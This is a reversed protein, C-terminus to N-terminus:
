LLDESAFPELLFMKLRLLWNSHPEDTLLQEKGNRDTVVWEITEADAALRLHYVSESRDSAVLGYIQASLAASDILLGSETNSWASREDFNMSGIFLYRRDVVAIKAHLRGFSKGFNGFSGAERTLDPSLEYIEVGLRLMARRYRSYRWHVLPEDTAGLSNTFVVVRIHHDIAEKIHEMGISGPIFYPSTIVVESRAGELVELMSRTVTSVTATRFGREVKAPNDAFVTAIAFNFPVRGASLQGDLSVGGLPDKSVPALEPPAHRVMEDFRRQAEANDLTLPVVGQVPWAHESNWYRDFVASLERVVPGASVVDMDIFNASASRMFYEDAMNRGGSVSFRNDAVFLKNHMRHNIRGFDHLSFLLRGALTAGRAPLPNFLRVEVNPLTAFCRFLEDEGETYLDDVLLRVRVGRRAAEALERLFQLGVSDHQLQYYQVDLSREARRILAVRADFAFDGTPLLRFGSEGPASGALSTTALRGLVTERTDTFATSADRPAMPPLSACGTLFAAACVVLRGLRSASFLFPM